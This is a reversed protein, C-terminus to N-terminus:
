GRNERVRQQLDACDLQPISLKHIEGAQARARNLRETPTPYEFRRQLFRSLNGAEIQTPLGRKDSKVVRDGPLAAGAIILGTIYDTNENSKSANANLSRCIEGTTVVRGRQIEVQANRTAESITRNKDILRDAFILVVIVGLGLIIYALWTPLTVQERNARFHTRDFVDGHRRRREGKM